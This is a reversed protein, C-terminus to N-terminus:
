KGQAIEPVDALLQLAMFRGGVESPHVGDDSLWGTVDALAGAFDIYRVGSDAIWANKLTNKYGNATVNPVTAYILTIGNSECMAKVSNAKEIWSASPASEGDPDNMGICWLVYKPTGHKLANIFDNYASASNEGPYANLLINNYGWTKAVYYPWRTPTYITFYSDGFAWFPCKYDDSNWTLTADTFSTDVSEAFVNGRWSSNIQQSRTFTGGATTITTKVNLGVDVEVTVGIFESITLGHAVATGEAGNSCYTMNTGDVKIYYGYSEKGHGVLVGGFTGDIKAFFNIYQNKMVSNNEVILSEEDDLTAAKAQAPKVGYTQGTLQQIIQNQVLATSAISDRDGVYPTYETVSTYEIQIDPAATIGATPLSFRMCAADAPVTLTAYDRGTTADNNLTPNIGGSIFTKDAKYFAYRLNAYTVSANHTNSYVVNASGHNSIDIYSSYSHNAIEVVTGTTEAIYGGATLVGDFRNKSYSKQFKEALADVNNDLSTAESELDEVRDTLTDGSENLIRKCVFDSNIHNFVDTSSVSNFTIYFASNATFITKAVTWSGVIATGETDSVYAVAVWGPTMAEITYKGAPYAFKSRAYNAADTFGNTLFRKGNVFDNATQVYPAVTGAFTEFEKNDDTIASKLDAIEDGTKKADAAAGTTALTADVAPIEAEVAAIAEGTAKSDAAAGEIALTDDVVYGTEPDVHEDLWGEVAGVTLAAGLLVHDKKEM